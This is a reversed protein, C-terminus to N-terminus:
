FALKFSNILNMLCKSNLHCFLNTQITKEFALNNMHDFILKAILSLVCLCALGSINLFIYLLIMRKM